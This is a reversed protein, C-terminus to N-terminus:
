PQGTVGLGLAALEARLQDASRYVTARMGVGAAAEANQPRDDIMLAQEPRVGALDLATRYIAPGPKMVGLYCSSFFALLFDGLGFTSIRHANLERSENNLAYMRVQGALSRALALTDDHPTSLALMAAKFAERDFSRPRYFVTQDLYADLSLRGLELESVILKHREQVDGPELGFRTVLEARQERDLGNSLLVGGIDWFVAKIDAM